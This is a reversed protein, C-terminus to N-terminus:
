HGKVEVVIGLIRINEVIEQVEQPPDPTYKSVVIAIAFNAIMAANGFGFSVLIWISLLIALYKINTRWYAQHDKTEM